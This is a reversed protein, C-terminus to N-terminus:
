DVPIQPIDQVFVRMWLHPNKIGFALSILRKSDLTNYYTIYMNKNTVNNVNLM